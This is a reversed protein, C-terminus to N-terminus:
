LFQAGNLFSLKLAKADLQVLAVPMSDIDLERVKDRVGKM